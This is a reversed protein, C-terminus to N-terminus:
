LNVGPDLRTCALALRPSGGCLLHVVFSEWADGLRVKKTTKGTGAGGGGGANARNGSGKGGGGGRGGSAVSVSTGMGATGGFSGKGHALSGTYSTTLAPNGSLGPVTSANTNSVPYTLMHKPVRPSSQGMRLKRLLTALIKQLTGVTNCDLLTEQSQVSLLYDPAYYERYLHDEPINTDKLDMDLLAATNATWCRAVNRLTSGGGGLVLLPLSFSRLYSLATSQGTSSLNLSCLRDGAM